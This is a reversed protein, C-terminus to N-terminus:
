RENHGAVVESAPPQKLAAQREVKGVVVELALLQKLLQQREDHSCNEFQMAFNVFLIPITLIRIPLQLAQAWIAAAPKRAGM